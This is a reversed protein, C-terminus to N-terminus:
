ALVESRSADNFSARSRWLVLVLMALTLILSLIWGNLVSGHQAWLLYDAFDIRTVRPGIIQLAVIM